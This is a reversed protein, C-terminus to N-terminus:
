IVIPLDIKIRVSLKKTISIVKDALINPSANQLSIFCSIPHSPKQIKRIIEDEPSSWDIKITAVSVTQCCAKHSSLEMVNADNLTQQLRSIDSNNKKPIHSGNTNIDSGLWARLYAVKDGASSSLWKGAWLKSTKRQLRCFM